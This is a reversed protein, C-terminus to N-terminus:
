FPKEVVTTGYNTCTMTNEGVTTQTIGSVNIKASYEMRMGSLTGDAVYYEAYLDLEADDLFQGAGQANITETYYQLANDGKLAFGFNTKSFYTYDLYQDYFPVLSASNIGTLYGESWSAYSSTKVYTKDSGSEDKEMYAALYTQSGFQSTLENDGTISQEFYIKDGDRKINQTIVMEYEVGLMTVSVVSKKVFTCNDYKENNFVSEYYSKTITEGNVPCPTYYKYDKGYKIVYVKIKITSRSSASMSAAAEESLAYSVEFEEVSTLGEKLEAPLNLANVASSSLQGKSVAEVSTVNAEGAVENSVYASAAEEATEFSEESVAGVYTDSVGGLETIFEDRGEAGKDLQSDGSTGSSSETEGTGDDETGGCATFLSTSLLCLTLMLAVLLLIKNLKM